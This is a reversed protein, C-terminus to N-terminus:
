EDLLVSEDEEMVEEVEENLVLEDVVEVDGVGLGGMQPPGPTSSHSPPQWSVRFSRSWQPRQLLAQANPLSHMFPTQPEGAQSEDQVKSRM